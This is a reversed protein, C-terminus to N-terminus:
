TDNVVEASPLVTFQRRGKLSEDFTLTTQVGDHENARGILYDAFDAGDEKFDDKKRLTPWLFRLRLFEAGIFSSGPM